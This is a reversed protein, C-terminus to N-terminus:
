NVIQVSIYFLLLSLLIGSGFGGVYYLESYDNTKEIINRLRDIEEDKIKGVVDMQEKISQKEIESLDRKEQISVKQKACEYDKDLEKQKVKHECEAIIKAISEPSMLYGDFPAAQGKKLETYEQAISIQCLFLVSFLLIFKRM